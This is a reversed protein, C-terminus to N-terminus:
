DVQEDANSQCGCSKQCEGSEATQEGDIQKQEYLDSLRHWNDIDQQSVGVGVHDCNASAWKFDDLLQPDVFGQEDLQDHIQNKIAQKISRHKNLYHQEKTQTECYAIFDDDNTIARHNRRPQNDLLFYRPNLYTELPEFFPEDFLRPRLKHTQIRKIDDENGYKDDVFLHVKGDEDVKGRKHYGSVKGNRNVRCTKEFYCSM